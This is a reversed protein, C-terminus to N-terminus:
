KSQFTYRKNFDAESEFTEVFYTAGTPKPQVYNQQFYTLPLIETVCDANNRIYTTVKIAIFKIICSFSANSCPRLIVHIFCGCNNM